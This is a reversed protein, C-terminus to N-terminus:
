SIITPEQGNIEGTMVDIYINFYVPAPLNVLWNVTLEIRGDKEVPLIKVIVTSQDLDERTITVNYPIGAISYHTVVKGTLSNKAGAQDTNFHEPIYIEPYWNGICGTIEGNTIHFIIETNVVEVTGVRQNFSKLHWGTAGGSQTESSISYFKIDEPNNIGTESKNRAVFSKVAEIAEKSTLADSVPPSDVTLLEDLYDCFGYENLSSAIYRNKLAFTSRSQTLIDSPIRYYTAPYVNGVQLDGRECSILLLVFVPFVLLNKKM